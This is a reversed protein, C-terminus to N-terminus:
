SYAAQGEIGLLWPAPNSFAQVLTQLFKAAPAGDIARHDFTLSLTMLDRPVMTDDALVVPDRRIAGLGLIAVQPPSIIPTFADIGFGGLNTITFVGGQMDAASLRGERALAILRQSDSAIEVLPRRAADRVVPVVLGAETDVAISIDFGDEAPLILHDENWLSALTPYLRLVLASLKAAFDSYTPVVGGAQKFRSRLAILETADVRTNLTVPATQSHSAQMRQAITRRRPSHPVIRGSTSEVRLPFEPILQKAATKASTAAAVRRIDEERVRGGRGTGDVQTYDVGLQRAIRRARPSAAVKVGHKPSVSNLNREVAAVGVSVRPLQISFDAVKEAAIELSPGRTGTAGAEWPARENAETLYGIIAGVLLTSGSRPADPPIRLVGGDVSEVEQLGKEGEMEFLPEGPSVTEGDQKLWGIFVGEEMSWGLRPICIEHAM